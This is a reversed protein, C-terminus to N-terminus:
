ATATLVLLLLRRLRNILAHLFILLMLMNLTLMFKLNRVIQHYINLTLLIQM